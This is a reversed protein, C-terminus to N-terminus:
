GDVGNELISINFSATQQLPLLELMQASSPSFTEKFHQQFYV